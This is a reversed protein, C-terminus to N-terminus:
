FVEGNKVKFIKGEKLNEFHSSECCTIFVQWGDIHNLIYEQRSKDLESMVDDLLAIPQEGTIDKIIQAESLKLTLAVSRKQGQSGFDRCNLSNIKFLIDDRHPGVSTVGRLIDEKRSNKINEKLKGEDSSAIYEIELIEKNNSIGEYIKPAVKKLKEIYAKRYKIIKEGNKAIVDEYDELLLKLSADRYCDKLINNRQMVARNYNKIIEIYNPYLQGVAIDLFKRRVSPGDTVLSLDSPSFIIANFKGAIEAASKVKKDNFYFNKKDDIQIKIENEIGGSEFCINTEARQKKFAIMENEKANRFSKAGTFLWVAEIINTKGQANEGCIINKEKHPYIVAEKLNRFNKFSISKIIM